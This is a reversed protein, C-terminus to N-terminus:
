QSMVKKTFYHYYSCQRLAVSESKEFLSFFRWWTIEWLVGHQGVVYLNSHRWKVRHIRMATEFSLSAKYMGNLGVDPTVRLVNSFKTRSWKASNIRTCLTLFNLSKLIGDAGMSAPRM